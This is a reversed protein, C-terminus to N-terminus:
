KIQIWSIFFSLFDALLTQAIRDTDVMYFFLVFIQLEPTLDYYSEEVSKEESSMMMFSLQGRYPM